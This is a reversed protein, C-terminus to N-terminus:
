DILCFFTLCYISNDTNLYRNDKDDHEHEAVEKEAPALEDGENALEWDKAAKHGGYEDEFKSFLAGPNFANNFSYRASDMKEKIDAQEILKNRFLQKIFLIPVLTIERVTIFKVFYLAVLDEDDGIKAGLKARYLYMLMSGWGIVIVIRLCYCILAFIKICNNGLYLSLLMFIEFFVTFFQIDLPRQKVDVECVVVFMISLVFYSFLQIVTNRLFVESELFDKEKTEKSELRLLTRINSTPYMASVLYIFIFFLVAMFSMFDMVVLLDFFDMRHFYGYQPSPNAGQPFLIPIMRYMLFEMEIFILGQYLLIQVFLSMAQPIFMKGQLCFMANMIGADVFMHCVFCALHVYMMLHILRYKEDYLEPGKAYMYLSRSEEEKFSEHSTVTLIFMTLHITPSGTLYKFISLPDWTKM